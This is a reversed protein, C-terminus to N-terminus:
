RELDENRAAGLALGIFFAIVAGAVAAAFPVYTV